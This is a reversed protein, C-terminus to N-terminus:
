RGYVAPDTLLQWFRTTARAANSATVLWAQGRPDPALTPLDGRSSPVTASPSARTVAAAYDHIGLAILGVQDSAVELDYIKTRKSGIWAGFANAPLDSVRSEPVDAMQDYYASVQVYRFKESVITDAWPDMEGNPVDMTGGTASATGLSSVVVAREALSRDILYADAVDTLPGGTVIVVPRYPLALRRSIEVILAAGESHNPSTADIDGSAPKVLPAGHSAVPEPVSPMGSERAASVLRTWGELNSDLDPWAPSADVVLGALPPGGGHALLLAYEGQWNDFPGDNILVVPNREDVPLLGHPVDYGADLPDDCATSAAIFLFSWARLARWGFHYSLAAGGSDREHRANM